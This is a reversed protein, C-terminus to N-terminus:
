EANAFNHDGLDTSQLYALRLTADIQEYVAVLRFQTSKTSGERTSIARSKGTVIAATGFLRVEEICLMISTFALGGVRLDRLVENKNLTSGDSRVLRYEDSYLTSLTELDGSLLAGYFVQNHVKLVDQANMM